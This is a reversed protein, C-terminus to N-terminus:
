VNIIYTGSISIWGNDGVNTSYSVLSYPEGTHIYIKNGSISAGLYKSDGCGISPTRLEVNTDIASLYPLGGIIINGACNNKSSYRLIISFSCINAIRTYKGTQEIYIAEGTEGILTPTFTGNEVKLGHVGSVDTVLANKHNTLNQTNDNLQSTNQSVSIKLNSIDANITTVDDAVNHIENIAGKITTSTTLLEENGITNNYEDVNENYPVDWNPYGKTIKKMAM